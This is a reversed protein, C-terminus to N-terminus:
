DVIVENNIEPIKEYRENNRILPNNQREKLPIPLTYNFDDSLLTFTETGIKVGDDGVLSFVHKIEPRNDMRRLDFWRHHDEFCLEKRRENLVFDLTGNADPYQINSTNSYRKSHLEIIDNIASESLGKQAYAEARNLYAEGVRLNAFGLSTYSGSGYKAPIYKLNGSGDDVSSFFAEKRIDNDEFFDFFSPNVLYGTQDFSVPATTYFSYLIESNSESVFPAAATMKTLSGSSIVMNSYEIAEDWKKQYLKVRSMLLNCAISSPHFKNKTIGSLDFLDKAILIDTEIQAYCEAVTNRNYTTEVGIDTRLPVGLDINASAPDYPQGYLNLLNFYSLARVFYAEGKVFDIEEQEGLAEDILEIVYNAIAIDEYMREWSNNISSLSNGEEDIEIERQWTYTTKRSEKVSTRSSANETINDTMHDVTGFIPYQSNFEQLLLAAFHDTKEPVLKDQDREDLFDSCGFIAILPLIFIIKKM